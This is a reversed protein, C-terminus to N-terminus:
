ECDYMVASGTGEESRQLYVLMCMCTGCEHGCNKEKFFFFDRFNSIQQNFSLKQPSGQLDKLKIKIVEAM